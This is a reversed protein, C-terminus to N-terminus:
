ADVCKCTCTCVAIDFCWYVSTIHLRCEYFAAGGQCCTRCCSGAVSPSHEAQCFAPFAQVLAYCDLRNSARGVTFVIDEDECDEGCDAVCMDTHEYALVDCYMHFRFM